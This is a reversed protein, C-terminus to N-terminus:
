CRHSPPEATTRNIVCMPGVVFVMKELPSIPNGCVWCRRKKIAKEIKKPDVVRFDYRDGVKAVFWPVPYGDQKPLHRM